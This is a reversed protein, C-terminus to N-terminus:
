FNLMENKYKYDKILEKQNNYAESEFPLQMYKEIGKTKAYNKYVNLSILKKNNWYFYKYCNSIQLEKNIIQKIHTIEHAIYTLVINLGVNDINNLVIENIGNNQVKLLDVYGFLQNSLRNSNTTQKTIVNIKIDKDINLKEKCYEVFNNIETTLIQNYVTSM